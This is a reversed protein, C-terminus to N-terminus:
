SGNVWPPPPQVGGGGGGVGEVWSEKFQVMCFASAEFFMAVDKVVERTKESHKMVLVRDM